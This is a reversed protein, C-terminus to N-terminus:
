HGSDHLVQHVVTHVLSFAADNDVADGRAECHHEFLQFHAESEVCEERPIRVVLSLIARFLLLCALLLFILVLLSVNCSHFM